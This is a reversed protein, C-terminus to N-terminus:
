RAGRAAGSRTWIVLSGCGSLSAYQSPVRMPSSYIEMAVIETPSVLDDLTTGAAGGASLSVRVGDIWVDPECPEGRVNRLLVRRRTTMVFQGAVIVPRVDVNPMTTLLDTAIGANTREIAARDLFRGIGM